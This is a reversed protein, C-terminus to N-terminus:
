KCDSRLSLTKECIPLAEPAIYGATGALGGQPGVFGSCGFDVLRVDDPSGPSAFLLNEPKVDRHVIGSAHCFALAGLVNGM